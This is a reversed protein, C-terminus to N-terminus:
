DQKTGCFKCFNAEKSIKANCSKCYKFLNDTKINNYIEKAVNIKECSSAMISLNIGIENEIKILSYKCKPYQPNDKFRKDLEGNKNVYQWTYGVIECDNPTAEQEVFITDDFSFNFDELCSISTQKKNEILVMDPLFYFENDGVTLCNCNVNTSLYYPTKQSFDVPIREIASNVGANRKTDVNTYKSKILWLKSCAAIVCFFKNFSDFYAQEESNFQYQLKILQTKNRYVKYAFLLIGGFLIFAFKGSMFMMLISLVTITNKIISDKKKFNNIKDILQSCSVPKIDISSVENTEINSHEEDQIDEVQPSRQAKKSKSSGEDVYSLGTGPISYTKRTKGNASKTYRLGPVGFSYGIGSKSLNIRVGGGLNISKRFRFGM